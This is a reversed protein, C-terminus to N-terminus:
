GKESLIGIIGDIIEAQSGYNLGNLTEAPLAESRGIIQPRIGNRQRNLLKNEAYIQLLRM